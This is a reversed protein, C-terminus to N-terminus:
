FENSNLVGADLPSGVLRTGQPTMLQVYVQGSISENLFQARGDAFGVCVGGPHFSNPWPSQGEAANRGSNIAHDGSNARSFDVNGPACLNNTCIRDSFYVKTRRTDCSGWNSNATVPDYGTRVNEALLLTNSM